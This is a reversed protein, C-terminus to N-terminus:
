PGRQSAVWAGGLRRSSKRRKTNLPKAVKIGFGELGTRMEVDDVAVVPRSLGVQELRDVVDTRQPAKAPGFGVVQDVEVLLGRRELSSDRSTRCRVAQAYVDAAGLATAELEIALPGARAAHPM